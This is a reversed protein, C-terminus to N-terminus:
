SRGLRAAIALALGLFTASLGWCLAVMSWYVVPRESMEATRWSLGLGSGWPVYRVKREALAICSYYYICFGFLAASVVKAHSQLVAAGLFCVPMVVFHSGFSFPLITALRRRKGRFLAVALAILASVAVTAGALVHGHSALILGTAAVAIAVADM